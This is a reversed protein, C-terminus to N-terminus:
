KYNEKYFENYKEINKEQFLIKINDDTISVVEYPTTIKYKPNNKLAIKYQESKKSDDFSSVLIVHNENLLMNKIELKDVSFFEANFKSLTNKATNVDSKPVSLFLLIKTPANQSFTYNTILEKKNSPNPKLTDGTVYQLVDESRFRVPHTPYTKIITQLASVFTAKDKVKGISMTKLFSLQPMLETTPYKKIADEVQTIVSAYQQNKYQQYIEEYLKEIGEKKAALVDGYNPNQIIQAYDSDPYKTLIKTKYEETKATNNLSLYMRYLQYYASLEYKSDPFRKLLMELTETAKNYDKLRERYITGINYYAEVINYNSRDIKAQSNPISAKYKDIPSLKNISDKTAKATPTLEEDDTPEDTTAVAVSQKNNRRWNDEQKRNGWTKQFQTYGFNRAAPNYFYWQNGAAAIPNQAVLNTANQKNAEVEQRELEEKAKKAEAEQEKQLLVLLAKDLESPSLKALKQLSDQLQITNYNKVLEGLNEKLTLIEEYRPHTNPINTSASDYYAQAPIYNLKSFYIEAIALYSMGKQYNNEKSARISQNYYAIASKEKKSHQEITGLAYYIQDLNEKNKEDYLMKSLLAKSEQSRTTHSAMAQQIRANFDLEFSANHKTIAEFHTAAEQNKKNEVQLQALVYEPRNRLKKKKINSVVKAMAKEAKETDKQLLYYNALTTQYEIELKRSMKQKDLKKILNESEFFSGLENYTKLLWIDTEIKSNDTLNNNIHNRSKYTFMEAAAYYDMKYFYAKGIIFYADDIFKNHEKGQIRMSHNKIVTACKTMAKDSYPFMQSVTQKNPLKQPPLLQTYNDKYKKEFDEVGEKMTLVANFYGNYKATTSHFTRNLPANKKTSCGLFLVIFFLYPTAFRFLM